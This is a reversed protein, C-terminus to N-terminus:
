DTAKRSGGRLSFTTKGKPREKEKGTAQQAPVSNEQQQEIFDLIRAAVWRKTARRRRMFAGVRAVFVVDTLSQAGFTARGNRITNGVILDARKRYLKRQAHAAVRGSELAFGVLTKRGAFRRGAEALIDPNEILRLTVARGSRKRKTRQRMAPRYDAVAATMVLADARALAQLTRARMQRATTVRIIRVGRPATLQSPGTVLTVRHARQRALEAVAYGMAGTSRNTLGRVPDLPEWTPGATVVLRPRQRM